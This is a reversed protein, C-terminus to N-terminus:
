LFHISIGYKSIKHRLIIVFLLYIDFHQIRVHNKKLVKIKLGIKIMM